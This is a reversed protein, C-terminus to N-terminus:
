PCNNRGPDTVRVNRYSNSACFLGRPTRAAATATCDLTTPPGGNISYVCYSRCYYNNNSPNNYTIQVRTGYVGCYMSVIKTLAPFDKEQLQAKSKALADGGSLMVAALGMIAIAKM